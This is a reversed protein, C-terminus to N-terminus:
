SVADHGGGKLEDEAKTLAARFQPSELEVKLRNVAAKTVLRREDPTMDGVRVNKLEALTRV